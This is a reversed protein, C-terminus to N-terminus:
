KVKGRRQIYQHYVYYCMTACLKIILKKSCKYNAYFTMTHVFHQQSAATQINKCETKETIKTSM